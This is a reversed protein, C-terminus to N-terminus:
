GSGAAASAAASPPSSLRSSRAAHAAPMAPASRGARASAPRTRTPDPTAAERLRENPIAVYLLAALAALLLDLQWVRDFSGAQEYVWGGLWVGLFSGVQHVLMVVGFLTGLHRTGYRKSVLAATPPMTAMYSVGMAGAFALLTTQTKPLLIFGAVAIARLTYVLVLLRHPAVRQLAFGVAITGFLNALGLMAFWAGTLSGGVGCLAIVGPMHALLFSVHFGCLMFGIAIAWYYPDAFAARAAVSPEAAAPASSVAPSGRARLVRALPLAALALIALGVSAGAWGAVAMSAQTAPPVVLQGLSAGSGVVGSAIGRREAPVRAAVAAMLVPTSGAGGLAAAISAFVLMLGLPTTAFPLMALAVALALVGAFVVPAPGYRDSLMGCVPQSVGAVLQSVALAMSITAFGVGTATNLPGIFMGQVARIGFTLTLLLTAAATVALAPFQERRPSM